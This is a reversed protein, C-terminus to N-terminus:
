RKTGASELPAASRAQRAAGLLEVHRGLLRCLTEPRMGLVRAAQRQTGTSEIADLVIAIAAAAEEGGRRIRWGLRHAMRGRNRSRSPASM